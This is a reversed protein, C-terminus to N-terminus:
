KDLLTSPKKISMEKISLLSYLSICISIFLLMLLINTNNSDGTDVPDVPDVPDPKEEESAFKITYRYVDSIGQTFDNKMQFTAYSDELFYGGTHLNTSFYKGCDKTSDYKSIDNLNLLITERGNGTESRRSESTIAVRNGDVNINYLESGNLITLKQVNIKGQQKSQKTKTSFTLLDDVQVWEKKENEVFIKGLALIKDKALQMSYIDYGLDMTLEYYDSKQELLSALKKDKILKKLMTPEIVYVDHSEEMKDLDRDKFMKLLINNKNKEQDYVRFILTNTLPGEISDTGEEIIGNKDSIYNISLKGAGFSLTFITGDEGVATNAGIVTSLRAEDLVYSNDLENNELDIWYYNMSKNSMNDSTHVSLLIRNNELEYLTLADTNVTSFFDKSFGKIITDTGVQPNEKDFSVLHLDGTGYLDIWAAYAKDGITLVNSIGNANNINKLPEVKVPNELDAQPGTPIEYTLEKSYIPAFDIEAIKFTGEPFVIKCKDTSKFEDPDFYANVRVENGALRVTANYPKDNIYLIADYLEQTVAWPTKFTLKLDNIALYSKDMELEFEQPEKKGEPSFGIEVKGTSTECDIGKISLGTFGLMNNEQFNTSPYTSYDIMKGQRLLCNYSENFTSKPVTYSPNGHADAEDMDLVEILQNHTQGSTNAYIFSGDDFTNSQVRYVRFGNPINVNTENKFNRYKVSQNGAYTEYQILYFKSYKGEDKNSVIIFGGCENLVDSDFSNLALEVSSSGDEKPLITQIPKGNKKVVIGDENAVVRLIQDDTIWGLLWKFYGNIDGTNNDMLDWTLTGTRGISSSVYNYLDPLGLVHGTEHIITHLGEETNSPCHLYVRNFAEKEDVVAGGPGYWAKSWWDSNWGTNEGAFHLYVCDLRGDENADYQDFDVGANDLYKLAEDFLIEAKYNYYDRNNEATYEYVDGTIKLKGYSAREYYASLSEFPYNSNEKSSQGNIIGEFAEKDDGEEFERDPFDVLLGIVKASGTKAMGSPFLPSKQDIGSEISNALLANKSLAEDVAQQYPIELPLYEQNKEEKENAAFASAPLIFAMILMIVCSFTAIKKVHFLKFISKMRKESEKKIIVKNGHQDILLCRALSQTYLRKAQTYEM